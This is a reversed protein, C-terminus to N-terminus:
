RVFFHWGLWWWGLLVLFRGRSRSVLVSFVDGLRPWSERRRAVSELVVMAAVVVAFALVTREFSTM